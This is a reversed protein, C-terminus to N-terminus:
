KMFPGKFGSAVTFILGTLSVCALISYGMEIVEQV